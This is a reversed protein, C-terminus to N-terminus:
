PGWVVRRAGPQLEWSYFKTLSLSGGVDGVLDRSLNGAWIFVMSGGGCPGWGAPVNASSGGGCARVHDGCPLSTQVRAVAVVGYM